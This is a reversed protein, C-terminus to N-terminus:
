NNKKSDKKYLKEAHKGIRESIVKKYQSMVSTPNNLEELTAVNTAIGIVKFSQGYVFGGNMAVSRKSQNKINILYFDYSFGGNFKMTSILEKENNRTPKAIFDYVYKASIKVVVVLKAEPDNLDMLNKDTKPLKEIPAEVFKTTKFSNNLEKVIYPLLSDYDGSAKKTIHKTENNIYENETLSIGAADFKDFDIVPLEIYVPITDVEEIRQIVTKEVKEFSMSVFLMSVIGAILLNKTKM